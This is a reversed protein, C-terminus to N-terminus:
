AQRKRDEETEYGFITVEFTTETEVIKAEVFVCGLDRLRALEREAREIAEELAIKKYLTM